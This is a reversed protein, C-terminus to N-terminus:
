GQRHERVGAWVLWGLAFVLLTTAFVSLLSVWRRPERALEPLGPKVIQELYVRQRRADQSASLYANNTATVDRSALEREFTLAEFVGVKPALSMHGGAVKAREAEIEREYAQIRGDLTVLLPSNPAEAAVYSREARLEVLKASLTGILRASETALNQPDIIEERNRFASLKAQAEALRGEAADRAALANAEADSASRANLRNVVGEGGAMLVTALRQADGPRFAKVRLTSIGTASDYGVSVFRRMASELGERSRREGLRPYRSFADAGAPSLVRELDLKGELERIADASRIYDHVAFSDTQGSSLGVGQLAVGFASPSTGGPSRVVFKAESVYLPSAFFLLYIAAILTPVIVVVIFALQVPGFWAGRSDRPEVTEPLEGLFNLQPKSM